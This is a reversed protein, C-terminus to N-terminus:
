EIELLEESLAPVWIAATEDGYSRRAGRLCETATWSCVLADLADEYRKLGSLSRVQDASALFPPINTIHERLKAEILAFQTLVLGIREGANSQPWFRKAKQVKYRFRQKTGMLALLAPHPYVEITRQRQPPGSDKVALPYGADTLQRMVTVGIPGPRSKTPSHASCWVKGFTVSIQHDARRRSSFPLTSIPM